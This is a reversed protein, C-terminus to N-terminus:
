RCPSRSRSTQACLGRPLSLAPCDICDPVCPPRLYPAAKRKPPLLCGAFHYHYKVTWLASAVPRRPHPFSPGPYTLSPPASLRTLAARPRDLATGAKAPRFRTPRVFSLPNAQHPIPSPPWGGTTRQRRSGNTSQVCTVRRGARAPLYVWERPGERGHHSRLWFGVM